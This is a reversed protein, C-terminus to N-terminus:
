GEVQVSQGSHRVLRRRDSERRRAAQATDWRPGCDLCRGDDVSSSTHLDTRRIPIQTCIAGDPTGDGICRPRIDQTGPEDDNLNTPARTTLADIIADNVMKACLVATAIADNLATRAHGIHAYHAAAKATPDSIGSTNHSTDYTQAALITILATQEQLHDYAQEAQEAHRRHMDSVNDLQRHRPTTM